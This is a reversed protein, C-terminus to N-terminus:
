FVVQMIDFLIQFFIIVNAYFYYWRTKLTKDQPNFYNITPFSIDGFWDHYFTQSKRKLSKIFEKRKKGPKDM